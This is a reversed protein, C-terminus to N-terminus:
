TSSLSLLSRRTIRETDSQPIYIPPVLLCIREGSCKSVSCHRGQQSERALQSVHDIFLDIRSRNCQSGCFGKMPPLSLLPREVVSILDVHEKLFPFNWPPMLLGDVQRDHASKMLGPISGIKLELSDAKPTVVIGDPHDLSPVSRLVLDHTQHQAQQCVNASNAGSIYELVIKWKLDCFAMRLKTVCLFTRGCDGPRLVQQCRHEIAPCCMVHRKQFSFLLSCRPGLVAVILRPARLWFRYALRQSCVTSRMTSRKGANLCMSRARRCNTSGVNCRSPSQNFGNRPNARCLLSSVTLTSKDSVIVMAYLVPIRTSSIAKCSIARRVISFHGLGSASCAISSNISSSYRRPPCNSLLTSAKCPKCLACPMSGDGRVLSARKYLLEGGRWCRADHVYAGTSSPRARALIADSRAEIRTVERRKCSENRACYTGKSSRRQKM